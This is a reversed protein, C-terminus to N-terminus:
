KNPTMMSGHHDKMFGFMFTDVIGRIPQGNFHQQTQQNDASISIANYNNISVQVNVNSWKIEKNEAVDVTGRITASGNGQLQVINNNDGNATTTTNYPKFNILSMTHRGTGDFHVMTFWSGFDTVNGSIVELMWNGGLIYSTQNNFQLSTQGDKVVLSSISGKASFTNLNSQTNAATSTGTTSTATQAYGVYYPSIVGMM